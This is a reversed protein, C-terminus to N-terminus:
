LLVAKEGTQAEIIEALAELLEVLEPFERAEGNWLELECRSGEDFVIFSLRVEDPIGPRGSPKISAPDVVRILEWLEAYRNPTLSLDVWTTAEDARTHNLEIGGDSYLTFDWAGYGDPHHAGGSSFIFSPVPESEALIGFSLLGAVAVILSPLGIM